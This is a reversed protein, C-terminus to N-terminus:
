NSTNHNNFPSKSLFSHISCSMSRSIIFDFSIAIKNRINPRDIHYQSHYHYTQLLVTICMLSKYHRLFTFQALQPCITHFQANFAPNDLAIHVNLDISCANLIHNM